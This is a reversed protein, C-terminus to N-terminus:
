RSKEVIQECLKTDITINQNNALKVTVWERSGLKLHEIVQGSIKVTAGVLDKGPM